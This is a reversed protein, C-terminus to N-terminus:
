FFFLILFESIDMYFILSNYATHLTSQNSYVKFEIDFHLSKKEIKKQTHM